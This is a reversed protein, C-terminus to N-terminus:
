KKGKMTVPKSEPMVRMRYTKEMGYNFSKWEVVELWAWHNTIVEVQGDNTRHKVRVPYWAFWQTWGDRSTDGIWRM